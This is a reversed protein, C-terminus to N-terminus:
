PPGVRRLFGRLDTPPTAALSEALRAVHRRTEEGLEYAFPGFGRAALFTATARFTRPLVERAWSPDGCTTSWADLLRTVFDHAAPYLANRELAPLLAVAVLTGLDFAPDGYFVGEFDVLAVPEGPAVLLNKSWLDAHVLCQEPAQMEAGVEDWLEPFVQQAGPAMLGDFIVKRIIAEEAPPRIPGGGRTGRHITGIARGLTEAQEHLLEFRDPLLSFLVRRGNGVDSMGLAMERHGVFLVEPIRVVDGALDRFRRLAEAESLLRERPLHAAFRRPREPVVKLYLTRGAAEGRFVYNINSHEEIEQLAVPSEQPLGLGRRVSEALRELRPAGSGNDHDVAGSTM